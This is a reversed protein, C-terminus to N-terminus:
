NPAEEGPRASLVLVVHPLRRDRRAPLRRSVWLAHTSLNRPAPHGDAFLGIAYREDPWSAEAVDVTFAVVVRAMCHWTTPADDATPEAADAGYDIYTLPRQALGLIRWPPMAAPNTRSLTMLTGPAYLATELAAAAHAADPADIDADIGVDVTLRWRVKFIRTLLRRYLDALMGRTNCHPSPLRLQTRWYPESQVLRIESPELHRSHPLM